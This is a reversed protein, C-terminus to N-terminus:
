AETIPADDVQGLFARRQLAHRDRPGLRPVALLAARGLLLRVFAHARNDGAAARLDDRREALARVALVRAPEEAADLERGRDANREARTLPREARDGDGARAAHRGVSRVVEGEYFVDG